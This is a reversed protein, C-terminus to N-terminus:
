APDYASASWWVPIVAKCPLSSCEFDAWVPQWWLILSLLMIWIVDIGVGTSWPMPVPMREPRPLCLSVHWHM